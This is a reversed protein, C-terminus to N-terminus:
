LEGDEKAKPVKPATPLARQRVPPRVPALSGADPALSPRAGSGSAGPVVVGVKRNPSMAPPSVGKPVVRLPGGGGEALRRTPLPNVKVEGPKPPAVAPTGKSDRKVVVWRGAELRCHALEPRQKSPLAFLPPVKWRGAPESMEPQTHKVLAKFVKVEEVPAIGPFERAMVKALHAAFRPWVMDAKKKSVEFALRDPRTRYGAIELPSIVRGEVEMWEKGGSLRVAYLPQGWTTNRHTFLAACSGQLRFRHPLWAVSKLKSSILLLPVLWCIVVAGLWVQGLVGFSWRKRGIGIGPRVMGESATNSM